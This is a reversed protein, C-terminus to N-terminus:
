VRRSIQAMPIAWWSWIERGSGTGNRPQKLLEALEDTRSKLEAVDVSGDASRRFFRPKGSELVKGRVGLLAAGPWLDRGLPLLDNENGGTGHLLMLTAPQSGNEPSPVFHHVFGLEDIPPM